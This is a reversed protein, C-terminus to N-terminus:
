GGGGADVPAVGADTCEWGSPVPVFCICEHEKRRGPECQWEGDVCKSSQMGSYECTYVSDGTACAFPFSGDLGCKGEPNICNPVPPSGKTTPWPADCFADLIVDAPADLAADPAPGGDTAVVADVKAVADQSTADVKSKADAVAADASGGDADDQSTVDGCAALTGGMAIGVGVVAQFLRSAM